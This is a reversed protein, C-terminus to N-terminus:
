IKVQKKQKKKAKYARKRAADLQAKAETDEPSKKHHFEWKKVKEREEEAKKNLGAVTTKIEFLRLKAKVREDEKEAKKLGETAETMAKEAKVRPATLANKKETEKRLKEELKKKEEGKAGKISINGAYISNELDKIKDQLETNTDIEKIKKEANKKERNFRAINRDVKIYKEKEEEIEEKIKKEEASLEKKEKFKNLLKNLAQEEWRNKDSITRRLLDEDIKNRFVETKNIFKEKEKKGKEALNEGTAKAAKGIVKGTTRVADGVKGPTARAADGVKGKATTVAKGVKEKANKVAASNAIKNARARAAGAAEGVKAPTARAADGVIGLVKSDKIKNKLTRAKNSAGTKFNNVKQTFNDSLKPWIVKMPPRRLNVGGRKQTRRNKLRRNLKKLTKSM